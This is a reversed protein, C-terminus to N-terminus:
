SAVRHPLMFPLMFFLLVLASGVVLVAPMPLEVARVASLAALAAYLALLSQMVVHKLTGFRRYRRAGLLLSLSLTLGVLARWAAESSGVSESTLMILGVYVATLALGCWFAGWFMAQDPPSTAERNLAFYDAM